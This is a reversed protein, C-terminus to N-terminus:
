FERCPNNEEMASEIAERFLGLDTVPKRLVHRRAVGASVLRAPLVDDVSGTHILISLGPDRRKVEEVFTDGAMGKLRLDVIALDYLGRRLGELAAEASDFASISHGLDELYACLSELIVQEDDIVLIRVSLSM